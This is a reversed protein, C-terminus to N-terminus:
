LIIGSWLPMIVLEASRLRFQQARGPPHSSLSVRYCSVYAPPGAGPRCRCAQDSSDSAREIPGPQQAYAIGSRWRAPTRSRDRGGDDAIRRRVSPDIGDHRDACTGGTYRQVETLSRVQVVRLPKQPPRSLLGAEDLHLRGALQCMGVHLCQDGRRNVLRPNGQWGLPLTTEDDHRITRLLRSAPPRGLSPPIQQPLTDWVPM